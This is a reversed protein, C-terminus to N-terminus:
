SDRNSKKVITLITPALTLLSKKNIFPADFYKIPFLLASLLLNILAKLKTSGFSFIISFLEIILLLFLSFPGTKNKQEVITWKDFLVAVGKHTFRQFDYPSAHFPYLFPILHLGYGNDKTCDYFQEVLKSPNPVHELMSRSVFADVSNKKFPLKVVDCVVDVNDYDFMDLCIINKDIRKNGSGVDIVVKTKPNIHEKVHSGFNFPYTPAIVNVGIIYYYKGLGRKLREKMKDLFDESKPPIKIFYIKDNRIPYDIVCHNCRGADSFFKLSSGCNPCVLINKIRELRFSPNEM